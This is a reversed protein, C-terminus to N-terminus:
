LLNDHSTNRIYQVLLELAIAFSIISTLLYSSYRIIEVFASIIMLITPIVRLRLVAIQTSERNTLLEWLLEHLVVTKTKTEKEQEKKNLRQIQIIIWIFCVVILLLCLGNLILNETLSRCLLMIGIVFHVIFLVRFGAGNLFVAVKAAALEAEHDIRRGEVLEVITCNLAKAIFRWEKMEPTKPNKYTRWTRVTEENAPEYDPDLENVVSCYVEHFERNTKYFDTESAIFANMAPISTM